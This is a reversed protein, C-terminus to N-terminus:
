NSLLVRAEQEKIFRPKESSFGACNSSFMTRRSKKKKEKEVRTKKSEPNKRSKLCYCLM